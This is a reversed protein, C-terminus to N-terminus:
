FGIQCNIVIVIVKRSSLGTSCHLHSVAVSSLFNKLDFSRKPESQGFNAAPWFTNRFRRHKVVTSDASSVAHRQTVEFDRLRKIKVREMWYNLWFIFSTYRKHWRKTYVHKLKFNKQQQRELDFYRVRGNSFRSKM